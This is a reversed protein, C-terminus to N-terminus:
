LVKLAKKIIDEVKDPAPGSSLVKRIAQEGAARAIGLSILADLADQEIRNGRLPSINTELSQRSLRDKLELIIREATKKGIGKIAELARANGQIIAKAIEEPKMSSLMMRATSAGVGTISILQIFMEKEAGEFFGYLTHADEKIHLYTYLTGKSLTEINSFTNLSIQVEYGVGNVDVHVLAPTKLVFEGKVYAIM